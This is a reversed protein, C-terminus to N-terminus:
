SQPKRGAFVPKQGHTEPQTRPTWARGRPVAHRSEQITLPPFCEPTRLTTDQSMTFPSPSETTAMDSYKKKELESAKEKEPARSSRHSRARPAPAPLVARLRSAARPDRATHRRCSARQPTQRPPRQRPAAKRSKWAQPQQTTGTSGRRSLAPVGATSSGRPHLSPSHGGAQQRLVDATNETLARWM